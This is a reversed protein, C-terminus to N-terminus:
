PILALIYIDLHHEVTSSIYEYTPQSFLYALLLSVSDVKLYIDNDLDINWWSGITQVYDYSEDLSQSHVADNRYDFM